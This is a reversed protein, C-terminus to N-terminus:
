FRFNFFFVFLVNPDWVDVNRKNLFPFYALFSEYAQTENGYCKFKM